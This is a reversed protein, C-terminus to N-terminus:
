GSLTVRSKVFAVLERRARKPLMLDYAKGSNLNIGVWVSGFGRRGQAKCLKIRKIESLPIALSKAYVGRRMALNAGDAYVTTWDRTAVFILSVAIAAVAAVEMSVSGRYQAGSLFSLEGLRIAFFCVIGVFLVNGVFGTTFGRYRFETGVFPVDQEEEGIAESKKPEDPRPYMAFDLFFGEEDEDMPWTIWGQNEMDKRLSQLEDGEGNVCVFEKGVKDNWGVVELGHAKALAKAAKIRDPGTKKEITTV